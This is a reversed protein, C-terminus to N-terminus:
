NRNMKEEIRDRIGQFIDLNISLKREHNVRAQIQEDPLNQDYVQNGRGGNRQFNLAEVWIELHDRNWESAYRDWDEQNLGTLFNLNREAKQFYLEM